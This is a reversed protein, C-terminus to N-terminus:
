GRGDTETMERMRDRYAVYGSRPHSLGHQAWSLAYRYNCFIEWFTLTTCDRATLRRYERLFYDREARVAEVSQGIRYRPLLACYFAVDACPDTISSLEWDIVARIESGQFLFNSLNCDGHNLCMEFETPRRDHLWIRAGEFSPRDEEPVDPFFRLEADIMSATATPDLHDLLGTLPTSRWDVAHIQALMAVFADTRAPTLRDAPDLLRGTTEGEVFECIWFIRGLVSLDTEVWYPAPVPVATEVLARFTEYQRVMDYPAQPGIVPDWRLVFRDSRAGFEVLYTPNSYGGSLQTLKVNSPRGGPLRQAFWKTLRHEVLEIEDTITM